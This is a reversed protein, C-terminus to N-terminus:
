ARVRKEYVSWGVGLLAVIAGVATNASAQDLLGQAVLAGGATTIVHRAIGLVMDKMM